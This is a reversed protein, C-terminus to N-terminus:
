PSLPIGHHYLDFGRFPRWVYGLVYTRPLRSLRSVLVTPVAPFKPSSRWEYESNIWWEYKLSDANKVANFERRRGCSLTRTSFMKAITHINTLVSEPMQFADSCWGPEKKEDVRSRRGSQFRGAVM